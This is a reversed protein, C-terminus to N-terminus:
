VLRGLEPDYAMLCDIFKGRDYGVIIWTRTGEKPRSGWEGKERYVEVEVWEGIDPNIACCAALPDHFKKGEPTKSLYYDMGQWIMVMSLLWASGAAELPNKVEAVKTESNRFPSEPPLSSHYAAKMLHHLDSDYYVGHCVNKSVLRREKINDSELAALAQKPAGNFNYTPCTTLGRFKDLQKEPPVVGEGAFGGQAVWRGLRLPEITNLVASINKPPAGTLLTTNEDVHAQLIQTASPPTGPPPIECVEPIGYANYHWKSVRHKPYGTAKVDNDYHFRPHAYVGIPLDGKGFKELVWRVVHVQDAGGPTINVAKLNVQPHGLLFILTLFDDPDGTEMDWIIDIRKM